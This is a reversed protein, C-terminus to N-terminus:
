RRSNVGDIDVVSVIEDMDPGSAPALMNRSSGFRENPARAVPVETGSGGGPVPNPNPGTRKWTLSNRLGMDSRGKNRAGSAWNTVSEHLGSGLAQLKIDGSMHTVIAYLPLTIYSCVVQIILGIVLRSIAYAKQEMICSDFGYTVLVWFFFGIEFANQFLIFHILHLVISPKGFWFHDKSPKINPIQNTEDALSAAAEQALRTIIHQLKAGVVLLLFLPLFALWFYTHWGNINLLLFLIVFLWLYWSIGVVRKFDHELARIMYKHFDFDLRSPYHILVFASRLAEYDSKSVSDHFQKLFAIIWSIVALQRWFGKTRESVFEGQERHLVIHLPTTNGALERQQLAAMKPRIERHIGTEWHKWKRIKAGGLLITTACFVVHVFGLVFIFIHLQHLAELSLLPVDGKKKCHVGGEEPVKHNVKKCPLMLLTYTEPICIHVILGQSLSLLFSIFGLLMLEEKLRQLASYLTKQQKHKLAKGLYHLLREAALSVSVITLCVAAVVWTPTHELSADEM